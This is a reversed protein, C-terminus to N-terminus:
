NTAYVLNFRNLKKIGSDSLPGYRRIEYEKIMM